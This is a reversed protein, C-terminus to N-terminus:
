SVSIPEMAWVYAEQAKKKKKTKEHRAEGCLCSIIKKEKKKKVGQFV